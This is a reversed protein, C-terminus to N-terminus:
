PKDSKRFSILSRRKKWATPEFALTVGLTQVLASVVDGKEVLVADEPGEHLEEVKLHLSDQDNSQPRPDSKDQRPLVKPRDKKSDNM